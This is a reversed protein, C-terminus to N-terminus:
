AEALAALVLAFAAWTSCARIWNLKFYFRRGREWAAPMRDPDWALMRDYNPEALRNSVLANGGFTLALGCAVLAFRSSSAEAGVLALVPALVMGIVVVYNFPSVRAVGLFRRLFRVFEPGDMARMVRHLIFNLMGYLGSFLGTFVVSAVLAWEEFTM